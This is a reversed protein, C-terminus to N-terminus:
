TVILELSTMLTSLHRTFSSQRSFNGVIVDIDCQYSEIFGELAGLTDQYNAIDSPSM